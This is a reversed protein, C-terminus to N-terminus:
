ERRNADRNLAVLRQRRVLLKRGTARGKSAFARQPRRRKCVRCYAFASIVPDEPDAIGINATILRSFFQRHAELRDM